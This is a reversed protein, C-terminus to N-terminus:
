LELEPLEYQINEQGTVYVSHSDAVDTHKSFERMSHLVDLDSKAWSLITGRALRLWAARYHGATHISIGTDQTAHQTLIQLTHELNELGTPSPYDTLTPEDPPTYLNPRDWYIRNNKHIYHEIDPIWTPNKAIHAVFLEVFNVPPLDKCDRSVLLLWDSAADMWPDDENAQIKRNIEQLSPSEGTPLELWTSTLNAALYGYVFDHIELQCSIDVLKIDQRLQPLRLLEDFLLQKAPHTMELGRLYRYVEIRLWQELLGNLFREQIEASAPESCVLPGCGKPPFPQQVAAITSLVDEEPIRSLNYSILSKQYHSKLWEYLVHLLSLNQRRCLISWVDDDSLQEAPAQSAEFRLSPDSFQVWDSQFANFYLTILKPGLSTHGALLQDNALIFRNLWL